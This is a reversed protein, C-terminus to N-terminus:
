CRVRFLVLSSMDIRFKRAKSLIDEKNVEFKEIAIVLVLDILKELKELSQRCLRSHYMPKHSIFIPCVEKVWKGYPHAWASLGRWLKHVEKREEPSLFSIGGIREGMGGNKKTAIGILLEYVSRMIIHASLYSACLISITVWNLERVLYALLYKRSSGSELIGKAKESLHGTQIFKELIEKREQIEPMPLQKLYDKDFDLGERQICDVTRSLLILINALKDQAYFDKEITEFAPAKVNNDLYGEIVERLERLKNKNM